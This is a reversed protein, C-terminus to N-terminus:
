SPNQAPATAASEPRTVDIPKGEPVLGLGGVVALLVYLVMFIVPIWRELHSLPRYAAGKGHQAKEWEYGYLAAPMQQELEHIVLFKVSNLDKYSTIIKHWTLSVLFGAVPVLITWYSNYKSAAVVGYLTVLFANGTLLYNNAVVRRESIKEASEVYHTYQAFLDAKFSEGYTEKTHRILQPKPQNGM